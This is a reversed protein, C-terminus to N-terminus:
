AHTEGAPQAPREAVAGRVFALSDAMRRLQRARGFYGVYKPRVELTLPGDYGDRALASLFARLPLAGEGPPVHTRMQGDRWISDSLHINGLAPRAIEYDALLDEGNAGAHTTDFTIGCGRAQAFRVLTALDDLLYRQHPRQSYQLSELCIRLKGGARVQAREILRTYAYTRPSEEHRLLPAHLVLVPAGVELTIDVLRDLRDVIGRPWGPLPVFPPHVTLIPAGLDRAARALDRPRRFLSELGIALEVGDFGADRALRASYALGRHYFTATSFSIRM